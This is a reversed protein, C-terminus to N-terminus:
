LRRISLKMQRNHIVKSDTNTDQVRGPAYGHFIQPDQTLPEVSNPWIKM